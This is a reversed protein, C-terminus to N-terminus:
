NSDDLTGDWWYAFVDQEEADDLYEKINDELSTKSYCRFTSGSNCLIYKRDTRSIDNVVVALIGNYARCGM